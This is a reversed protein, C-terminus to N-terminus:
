CVSRENQQQQKKLTKGFLIQIKQPKLKPLRLFFINPNIGQRVWKEYTDSIASGKTKVATDLTWLLDSMWEPMGSFM